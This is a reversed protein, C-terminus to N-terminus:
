EENDDRLKAPQASFMPPYYNVKRVPVAPPEHSPAVRNVGVRPQDQAIGAVHVDVCTRKQQNLLAALVDSLSKELPTM